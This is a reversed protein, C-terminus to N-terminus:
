ILCFIQVTHKVTHGLCTKESFCLDVVVLVVLPEVIVAVFWSPWLCRGRCGCVQKRFITHGHIRRSYLSKKSTCRQNKVKESSHGDHYVKHGDRNTAM